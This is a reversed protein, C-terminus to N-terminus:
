GAAAPGVGMTGCCSTACQGGSKGRGGPGDRRRHRRRSGAPRRSELNPTSRSGGWRRPSTRGPRPQRPVEEDVQVLSSTAEVSSHTEIWTSRSLRRGALQSRRCRPRSRRPSRRPRPPSPAAQQAPRHADAGPRGALRPAGLWHPTVLAQTTRPFHRPASSSPGFAGPSRCTAATAPSREPPGRAVREPTLNGLVHGIGPVRERSGPNNDFYPSDVEAPVILTVEVGTGRLDERLHETFARMAHRATGYGNAGPFYFYAAASTM